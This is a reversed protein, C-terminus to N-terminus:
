TMEPEKADGIGNNECTLGIKAVPEIGPLEVSFASTLAIFTGILFGNTSMVSSSITAMNFTVPMHHHVAHV